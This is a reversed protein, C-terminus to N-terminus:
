GDMFELTGDGTGASQKSSKKARTRKTKVEGNTSAKLRALLESGPEYTRGDRRALEAETPVLQGRFAKALVAQTLSEVRRLASTVGQEISDALTLFVAVRRVIEGQEEISPVPVPIIRTHEVNIRPMDSGM